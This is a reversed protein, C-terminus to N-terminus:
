GGILRRALKEWLRRHRVRVDGFVSGGTLVIRPAGIGPSASQEQTVRGVRTRARLEVEVGEPVLLDIPGFVTRAHIRVEGSHLHAERLDLQVRGLWSRYRSEAPVLWAGSRRIDGFARVRGADAPAAPPAAPLDSFLRALEGRTLARHAAESRDALEELTLRGEAAAARLREIAQDREEDSARVDM